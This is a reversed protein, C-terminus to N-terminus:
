PVHLMAFPGSGIIRANLDALAAADYGIIESLLFTGKWYCEATPESGRMLDVASGTTGLVVNGLADTVLDYAAIAIATQSGDSNADNYAKVRYQTAGVTTIQGLLTGRAITLNPLMDLAITRAHQPDIYPELKLRTLTALLQAM